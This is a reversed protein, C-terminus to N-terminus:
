FEWSVTAPHQERNVMIHRVAYCLDTAGATGRQLDQVWVTSYKRVYNFVVLLRLNLINVVIEKKRYVVQAPHETTWHKSLRTGVTM